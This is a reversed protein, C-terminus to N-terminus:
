GAARAKEAWEQLEQRWIVWPGMFSLPLVVEHFMREKLDTTAAEGLADAALADTLALAGDTPRGWDLAGDDALPRSDGPALHVTVSTGAKSRVGRYLRDTIVAQAM